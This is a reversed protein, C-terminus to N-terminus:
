WEGFHRAYFGYEVNCQSLYTSAFTGKDQGSATKKTQKESKTEDIQLDQLGAQSEVWFGFEELPSADDLIGM